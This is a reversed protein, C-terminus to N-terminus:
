HMFAAMPNQNTWQLTGIKESLKKLKYKNYFAVTEKLNWGDQPCGIQEKIDEFMWVPLESLDILNKNFTYRRTLEKDTFVYVDTDVAWTAATKAGVGKRIALINDSKDGAIIHEVLFRKSEEETSHVYDKKLPDYMRVHSSLLQKFDKDSSIITLESQTRALVNIIDDAEAKLHELVHIDTHNQLYNKVDNMIKWIQEWPMSPDRVRDKYRMGKYDEFQQSYEDYYITRWNNKKKCDFAAYLLNDSNIQFQNVVLHLSNLLLHACIPPNEIVMQRSAFVNRYFLYSMDVVVAM